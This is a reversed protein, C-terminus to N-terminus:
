KVYQRVLSLFQEKFRKESFRQANIHISRTNFKMKEFKKLAQILSKSTQSKFLVGTKGDIVIEKAGGKNFAIVPKGFSQAEVIALGFDEVGSFILAKCNKYYGSLEDDTLNGPFFISRGSMKKLRKEEMGKGIILLPVNLKNCASIALDIRKYPVLRSVILFYGSLTNLARGRKKSFGASPYVVVSDRSYYKKIRKKIELSIAIYYKPTKAIKKDWIRLLFIIPITFSRFFNNKFYENYGSWLYRTPTLCYCIHTTNKDVRVAKAYESTVSIVVDFKKFSFSMFALPMFPVFLEHFMSAFPIYQLFSAKVRFVRAWPATKPNYVSTYLPAKPFLEHLALLVREAGGWKNVRDYVIAVKM